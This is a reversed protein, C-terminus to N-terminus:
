HEKSAVIFYFYAVVSVCFFNSDTGSGVAQRLSPTKAGGLRDTM